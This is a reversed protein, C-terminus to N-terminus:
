SLQQSLHSTNRAINWEYPNKVRIKEIGTRVTFFFAMLHNSQTLM